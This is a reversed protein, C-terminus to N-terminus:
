SSSPIPLQSTPYPDTVKFSRMDFRGYSPNVTVHAKAYSQKLFRQYVLYLQNNGSLMDGEVQNRAKSFRETRRALVRVIEFGNPTKVAKSVSGVVLSNLLRGLQPRTLTLTRNPTWGLSGGKNSTSPDVSYRRALQAFLRAEASPPASRLRSALARALSSRTLPLEIHQGLAESYRSSHQLFYSRMQATTPTNMEYVKRQLAQQLVQMRISRALAGKAQPDGAVLAKFQAHTTIGQAALFRKEAANVQHSTIHVGLRDAENGIVEKQILYTLDEQTVLRVESGSNGTLGTEIKFADSNSAQNVFRHLQSKPIEHGNVPAAATYPHPGTATAVVVVVVAVL